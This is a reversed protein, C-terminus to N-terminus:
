ELEPMITTDMEENESTSEEDTEEDTKKESKFDMYTRFFVKM